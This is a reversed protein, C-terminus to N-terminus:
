TFLITKRDYLNYALKNCKNIKIREPLFSLDSHFNYLRKPYKVDVEFNYRKSSDKDYIRIFKKNFNYVNNEM